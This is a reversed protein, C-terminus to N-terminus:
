TSRTTAIYERIWHTINVNEHSTSLQSPPLKIYFSLKVSPQIQFCFLRREPWITDEGPVLPKFDLLRGLGVNASLDKGALETM